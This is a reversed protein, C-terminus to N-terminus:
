KGVWAESVSNEETADTGALCPDKMDVTAQGGCLAPYKRYEVRLSIEADNSPATYIKM